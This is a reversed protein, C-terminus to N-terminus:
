PFRVKFHDKKEFQIGTDTRKTGNSRRADSFILEAEAVRKIITTVTIEEGTNNHYELDSLNSLGLFGASALVTASSMQLFTRRSPSRLM